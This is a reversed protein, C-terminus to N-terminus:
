DLENAPGFCGCRALLPGLGLCSAISVNLTSGSWSEERVLVLVKDITKIDEQSVGDKGPTIKNWCNDYYYTIQAETMEFLTLGSERVSHYNKIFSNIEKKNLFLDKDLDADNFM